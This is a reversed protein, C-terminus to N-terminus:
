LAPLIEGRATEQVTHQVGTKLDQMAKRAARGAKSPLLEPSTGQQLGDAPKVGVGLEYVMHGGLYASYTAAALGLIGALLYGASAREQRARWFALAAGAAVVGINISRHTKLADMAPGEAKVEEQAILGAAAATVASVAALPMTHRGLDSLTDSGTVRGLLDAGISLPLLTLPFHVISPHLEQLRMAM